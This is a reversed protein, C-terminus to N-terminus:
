KEINKQDDEGPYRVEILCLGQPPALGMVPEGTADDLFDAVVQPEVRGQGIDVLLSVIRRVMHYLFANAEIQFSLSDGEGLWCTEFVQRQTPGGPKTPRGFAAFDHSGVLMGAATKMRELDPQPWVRWAYRERLPDRWPQSFIDYRYRRSLAAYRPHFDESASTLARVSIDEPLVANLANHLDGPSHAWDFDFAVVQGSAHVGSDTRGAAFVSRGTWGIKRLAEEVAHQVTRAEVQRQFGYFETGDYALIIKYRAM